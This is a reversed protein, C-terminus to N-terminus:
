ENDNKQDFIEKELNKNEEELKQKENILDDNQKDYDQIAEKDALESARFEKLMRHYEAVQEKNEAELEELRLGIM